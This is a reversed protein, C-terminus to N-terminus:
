FARLLGFSFLVGMRTVNLVRRTLWENVIRNRAIIGWMRRWRAVM